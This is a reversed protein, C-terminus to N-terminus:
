KSKPLVGIVNPVPYSIFNYDNENFGTEYSGFKKIKKKGANIAAVLKYKEVWQQVNMGRNKDMNSISLLTFDWQTPDIRLITIKMDGVPSYVKTDFIGLEMGPAIKEWDGTSSALSL